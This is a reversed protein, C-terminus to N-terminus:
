TRQLKFPQIVKPVTALHLGEKSFRGARLRMCNDTIFICAGVSMSKKKGWQICVAMKITSHSIDRSWKFIKWDTYEYSYSFKHM